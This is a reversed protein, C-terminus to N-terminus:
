RPRMTAASVWGFIDTVPCITSPSPWKHGNVQRVLSIAPKTYGRTIRRDTYGVTSETVTLWYRIASVASDEPVYFWYSLRYDEGAQVRIPTGAADTLNFQPRTNGAIHDFSNTMVRLSCCGLNTRNYAESVEATGTSLNISEKDTYFTSDFDMLSPHSVRGARTWAAYLIMDGTLQGDYATVCEKDTYWGTLRYGNRFVPVPTYAGKQAYRTVTTVGDNYDLTLKCIASTDTIREMKLDDIYVTTGSVGGTPAYLGFHARVEGCYVIQSVTVWRGTESETTVTELTCFSDATTDASSSWSRYVFLLRIDFDCSVEKLYYSFTVRYYAGKAPAFETDDGDFIRFAPNSGGAVGDDLYAMEMAGTGSQAFDLDDALMARVNSRYTNNTSEISAAYKEGPNYEFDYDIAGTAAGVGSWVMGTLLVTLSLLVALLRRTHAFMRKKM